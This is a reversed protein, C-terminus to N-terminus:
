RGEVLPGPMVEIFVDDANFLASVHAQSLATTRGFVACWYRRGRSDVALGLGIHQWTSLINRNHGASSKWGQMVSEPTAYGMAINEGIARYRYGEASARSGPGSGGAGTHSMNQNAAMWQAHKQAAATLLANVALAGLGKSDRYANHLELLKQLDPTGPAPAPGPAPVPAPPPAPVPRPKLWAKFIDVLVQWLKSM